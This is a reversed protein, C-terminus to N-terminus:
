ELSLSAKPSFFVIKRPVGGLEKSIEEIANM